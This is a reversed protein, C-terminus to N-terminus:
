AAVEGPAAPPELEGAAGELDGSAALELMVRAVRPDFQTGAGARIQELAYDASRATRYARTSTIADFTDAVAIIRATLPIAEGALGDPYGRGDYREHHHRVGPLIGQLQPIPELVRCGREPHSQIVRYEEDTLRAPKNLIERQVAIKGVDHLLATWSLTQMQDPTLDLRGGLLLSIRYVRESHGRTYEDKADIAAVLSRVTNFLMERLEGYLRRTTAAHSLQESLCELLRLEGTSFPESDILRYVGVHGTVASRTRVPNVVYHITGTPSDISGACRTSADPGAEQQKRLLEAHIANMAAPNSVLWSLEPSTDIQSTSSRSLRESQPQWLILARDELLDATEALLKDASTGFTQDPQLIRTFRYLLNIEDYALSLRDTMQDLDRGLAFREGVQAALTGILPRVHPDGTFAVLSGLAEGAAQIPASSHAMDSPFRSRAVDPAIDTALIVEGDPDFVALPIRLAGALHALFEGHVEQVAAGFDRQISESM